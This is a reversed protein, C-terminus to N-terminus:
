LPPVNPSKGGSNSAACFVAFEVTSEFTTIVPVRWQAGSGASDAAHGAVVESLVEQRGHEEKYHGRVLINRWSLTWGSTIVRATGRHHWGACPHLPNNGDSNQWNSIAGKSIIVTYQEHRDHLETHSGVARFSLLSSRSNFIHVNDWAFEIIKLSDSGM